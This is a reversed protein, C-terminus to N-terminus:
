RINTSDFRNIMDLM